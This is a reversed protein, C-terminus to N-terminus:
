KEVQLLELMATELLLCRLVLLEDDNEGVLTGNQPIRDGLLLRSVLDRHSHSLENKGVWKACPEVKSFM